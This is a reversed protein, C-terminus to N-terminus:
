RRIMITITIHYTKWLFTINQLQYTKNMTSENQFMLLGPYIIIKQTKSDFVSFIAMIINFYTIFYAIDIIFIFIICKLDRQISHQNLVDFCFITQGTFTFGHAILLLISIMNWRNM